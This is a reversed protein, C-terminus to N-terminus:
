EQGGIHIHSLLPRQCVVRVLPWLPMFPSIASRWSITGGSLRAVVEIL